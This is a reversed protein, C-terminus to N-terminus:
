KKRIGLVGKIESLDGSMEDLKNDFKERWLETNKNDILKATELITIRNYNMNILERQSDFKRDVASARGLFISGVLVVVTVCALVLHTITVNDKWSMPM